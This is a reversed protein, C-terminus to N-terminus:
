RPNRHSNMRRVTGACSRHSSGRPRQKRDPRPKGCADRRGFAVGAAGAPIADGRAGDRGRTRRGGARPRDVGGTAGSGARAGGSRAHGGSHGDGFGRLAGRCVAGARGGDGFNDELPHGSGRAYFLPFAGARFGVVPVGLTELAELTAGVDLISKAGACVTVVPFRALAVLDSSIDPTRSWGRHVGGIGGTAFVRIGALACAQLSAAVTLAGPVGGVLTSAFNQLNVKRIAPDGSCFRAVEGAGLGACVKGDLIALTAPLAGEARVVAECEAGVEANLPAPLGFALITTELGVVPDGAALADRVEPAVRLHDGPGGAWPSAVTM